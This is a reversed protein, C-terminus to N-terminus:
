IPAFRGPVMGLPGVVFVRVIQDLVARRWHVPEFLGVVEVVLLTDFRSSRTPPTWDLRGITVALWPRRAGIAAEGLENGRQDDQEADARHNVPLPRIDVADILEEGM